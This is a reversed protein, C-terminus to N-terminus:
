PIYGTEQHIKLIEAVDAPLGLVERLKM